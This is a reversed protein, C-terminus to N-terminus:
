GVINAAAMVDVFAVHAAFHEPASEHNRGASLPVLFYTVTPIASNEEATPM